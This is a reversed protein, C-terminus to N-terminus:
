VCEAFFYVEIHENEANWSLTIENAGFDITFGINYTIKQAQRFVWLHDRIWRETYLGTDPLTFETIELVAGSFGEFYQSSKCSDGEDGPCYFFDTQKTCEGCTVILRYLGTGPLEFPNGTGVSQFGSGNNRYWTLTAEEEGCGDLTATATDGTVGVSLTLVCIESTLIVLRDYGTCDDDCIVYVEYLGEDEVDYTTALGSQVLVPGAGTDRYWEYTQSGDCADHFVSLVGDAYSLTAAIECTTTGTWQAVQERTCDGCGTLRVMYLGPDGPVITQGTDFADWDETGENWLFWEYSPTECGASVASLAAGQDEIELTVLDCPDAFLYSEDVQCGESIVVARYHGYEGLSVTSADAILLTWPVDTSERYYWNTTTTGPADSVTATLEFADQTVEVAFAGCDDSSGPLDPCDDVFPADTYAPRCCSILGLSADESVFYLSIQLQKFTQDFTGNDTINMQEIVFTSGGNVEIVTGSMASLRYLYETMLEDAILDFNAVRDIVRRRLKRQGFGNVESEDEVEYRMPNMLVDFYLQLTDPESGDCTEDQYISFTWNCIESENDSVHMNLTSILEEIEILNYPRSSAM